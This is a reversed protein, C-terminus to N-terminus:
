YIHLLVSCKLLFQKHITNSIQRLLFDILSKTLLNTFFHNLTRGALTIFPVKINYLGVEILVQLKTTIPKLDLGVTLARLRVLFLRGFM